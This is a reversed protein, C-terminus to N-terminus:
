ARSTGPSPTARAIDAVVKQPHDRLTRYAFRILETGYNIKLDNQRELDAAFNGPTHHPHFGDVEIALHHSPIHADVYYPGIRANYRVRRLGTSPMLKRLLREADNRTFGDDPDLFARLTRAGRRGPSRDLLEAIRKATTLGKALLENLAHELERLDLQEAADLLTREPTTVALDHRRTVDRRELRRTRHVTIGDRNSRPTPVIVDVRRGPQPPLAGWVELGSRYGIVADDGAALRAATQAAWPAAADHGLSYVARHKRHLKGKKARKSAGGPGLGAQALQATTIRGRQRGATGAIAAEDPSVVVEVM